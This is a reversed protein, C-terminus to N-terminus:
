LWHDGTKGMEKEMKDRKKKKKSKVALAMKTSERQQAGCHWYRESYFSRCLDPSRTKTAAM